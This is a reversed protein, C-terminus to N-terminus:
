NTGCDAMPTTIYFDESSNDSDLWLDGDKVKRVSEGTYTGSVFQFGSDIETNLRTFSESDEDMLAEMSDIIHNSPTVWLNNGDIRQSEAEEQTKKTPSIARFKFRLKPNKM